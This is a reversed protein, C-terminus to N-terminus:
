NIGCESKLFDRIQTRGVGSYNINLGILKDPEIRKLYLEVQEFSIEQGHKNIYNLVYKLFDFLAQIGITKRMFSIDSRRWFMKDCCTFYDKVLDYVQGDKNEIYCGRLPPTIKMEIDSLVERSRRIIRKKHM